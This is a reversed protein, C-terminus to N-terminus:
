LHRKGPGGSELLMNAGTRELNSVGSAAGDRVTLGDLICTSDINTARVVHLSNDNTNGGGPTDNGNLDGSLITQHAAPDRQGVDTENGVFGGYLEVGSKLAFSVSRSGGVGAPTYRGQAIWIQTGPAAAALAAQLGLAGQFANAWSSGDNAGTVRSVDVYITTQAFSREAAFILFLYFVWPKKM